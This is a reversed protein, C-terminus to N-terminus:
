VILLALNALVLICIALEFGNLSAMFSPPQPWQPHPHPYYNNVNEQQQAISSIDPMKCEVSLKACVVNTIYNRM